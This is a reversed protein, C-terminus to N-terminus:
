FNVGIGFLLNYFGPTYGQSGAPYFELNFPEFMFNWRGALVYKVGAGFRIGLAVNTDCVNRNFGGQCSPVVFGMGLGAMPYIYVPLNPVVQIDAQIGPILAITTYGAGFGLGLPLDLYIRYRYGAALGVGFHMGMRFQTGRTDIIGISPGFKFDFKFPGAPRQQAVATWEFAGMCLASVVLIHLLRKM